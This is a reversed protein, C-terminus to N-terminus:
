LDLTKVHLTYSGFEKHGLFFAKEVEEQNIHADSDDETALQHYDTFFQVFVMDESGMLLDGRVGDKEFWVAHTANDSNDNNLENQQMNCSDCLKFGGKVLHYPLVGKGCQECNTIEIDM